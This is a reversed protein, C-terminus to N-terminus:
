EIGFDQWQESPLSETNGTLVDIIEIKTNFKMSNFQQLDEQLIKTNHDGSRDATDAFNPYDLTLGKKNLTFTSKGTSIIINVIIKNIKPPLNLLLLGYCVEGKMNPVCYMSWSFNKGNIEKGDLGFNPSYFFKGTKQSKFQQLLDNNIIWEYNIIKNM